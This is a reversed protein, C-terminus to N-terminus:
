SEYRQIRSPSVLSQDTDREGRSMETETEKLLELAIALGRYHGVRQKYDAYDAALAGTFMRGMLDHMQAEIKKALLQAFRSGYADM